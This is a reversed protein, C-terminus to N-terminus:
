QHSTLSWNDLPVSPPTKFDSAQMGPWQPNLLVQLSHTGAPLKIIVVTVGPNDPDPAPPTPDTPYRTAPGTTLQAGPTNLITLTLTQSGITLTASQGNVSVSANTHM